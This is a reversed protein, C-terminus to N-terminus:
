FYTFASKAGESDFRNLNVKRSARHEKMETPEAASRMHSALKEPRRPINTASAPAEQCEPNFSIINYSSGRQKASSEHKRKQSITSFDNSASYSSHQNNEQSQKKKAPTLNSSFGRYHDQDATLFNSYTVLHSARVPRAKKDDGTLCKSPEETFITSRSM